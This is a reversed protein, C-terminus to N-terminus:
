TKKWKTHSKEAPANEHKLLRSPLIFFSAFPHVCLKRAESIRSLLIGPL